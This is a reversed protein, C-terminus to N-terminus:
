VIPIFKIEGFYFKDWPLRVGLSGERKDKQSRSKPKYHTAFETPYKPRGAKLLISKRTQAVALGLIKAFDNALNTLFFRM